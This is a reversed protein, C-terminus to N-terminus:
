PIVCVILCTQGKSLIYAIAATLTKSKGTGPPGHIVLDEGMNITRVVRQQSHDLAM